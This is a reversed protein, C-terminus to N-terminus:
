SRARQSPTVAHSQSRTLEVDVLDVSEWLRLTETFQGNVLWSRPVPDTYGSCCHFLLLQRNPATALPPNRLVLRTALLPVPPTALLGVLPVPPLLGLLPVPSTAVVSCSESLEDM